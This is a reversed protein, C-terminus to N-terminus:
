QLGGTFAVEQAFGAPRAPMFVLQAQRFSIPRVIPPAAPAVGTWNGMITRVYDQTAAIRPVSWGRQVRGPGANYAALALDYRGFRNVQAKLYRAGGRLNDSLTYADVGLNHATDPMLQSLGVAGKPSLATARYRSEKIILADFLGVPLGHECAAQQVLPFIVRRREEASRGLSPNPRYAPMACEVPNSPGAFLSAAYQQRSRAYTVFPNGLSTPLSRPGLGAPVGANYLGPDVAGGTFQRAMAMSVADIESSSLPSPDPVPALAVAPRSFDLLVVARNPKALAASTSSSALLAVASVLVAKM